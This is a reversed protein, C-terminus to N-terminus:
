FFGRDSIQLIQKNAKLLEGDMFAPVGEVKLKLFM